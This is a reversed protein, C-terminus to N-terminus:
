KHRHCNVEADVQSPLLESRCRSTVTVTWKQMSKQRYCNAAANIQSPLLESRCRNTVTVNWKQMSKHRYCNVEADVHSPLLESSCQSTVTYCNVAAIVQSPLMKSIWRSTVTATWQELSVYSYTVGEASFHIKSDTIGAPTAYDENWDRASWCLRLHSASQEFKEFNDGFIFNRDFSSVNKKIDFFQERDNTAAEM